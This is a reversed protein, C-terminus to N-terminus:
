RPLYVNLYCYMSLLRMCIFHVEREKTRQCVHNTDPNGMKLENIITKLLLDLTQRDKEVSGDLENSLVLIVQMFPIVRAGSCVKLKPIYAILKELMLIRLTHLKNANEVESEIETESEPVVVIEKETAQFLDINLLIIDRSTMLLNYYVRYCNVQYTNTTATANDTRGVLSIAEQINDGYSSSRGSANQEGTISDAGSGGSESGASGGQLM